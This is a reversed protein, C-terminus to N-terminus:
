NLLKRKKGHEDVVYTNKLQSTLNRKFNERYENRLAEQESKEEATLGEAKAKAALQNIRKIKEKDTFVGGTGSM